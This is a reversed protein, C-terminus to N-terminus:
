ERSKGRLNRKRNGPNHTGMALSNVMDHMSDEDEVVPTAAGVIPQWM